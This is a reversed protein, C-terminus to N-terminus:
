FEKAACRSYHKNFIKKPILNQCGPCTYKERKAARQRVVRACWLYKYKKDRCISCDCPVNPLDLFLDEEEWIEDVKLEEFLKKTDIFCQRNKKAAHHTEVLEIQIGQYVVEIGIEIRKIEQRMLNYNARQRYCSNSTSVEKEM